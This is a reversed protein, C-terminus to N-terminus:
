KSKKPQYEVVLDGAENFELSEDSAVINSPPIFEPEPALDEKPEAVPDETKEEVESKQESSEQDAFSKVLKKLEAVEAKLANIEESAEEDAAMKLLETSSTGVSTVHEDKEPDKSPQSKEYISKPMTDSEQLVVNIGCKELPCIPDEGERLVAVHDIFTGEQVGTDFSKDEEDLTFSPSIETPIDNIVKQAIEDPLKHFHERYFWAKGRLVQNEDDWRPKVYGLLDTRTTRGGEPHGLTLKITPNYAPVESLDQATKTMDGWSYTYNGPRAIIIDREYAPM